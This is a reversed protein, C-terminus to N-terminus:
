RPAEDRARRALTREHEHLLVDHARVEHVVEDDGAVGSACRATSFMARKMRKAASWWVLRGRSLRTSKM